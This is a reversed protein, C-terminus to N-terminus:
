GASPHCTTSPCPRDALLLGGTLVHPPMPHSVLKQFNHVMADAKAFDKKIGTIVIRSRHIPFGMHPPDLQQLCMITYFPMQQALTDTIVKLDSESATNTESLSLGMVNEMYWVGPMLKNIM